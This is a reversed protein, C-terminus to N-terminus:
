IVLALHCSLIQAKSYKCPGNIDEQPEDFIVWYFFDPGQMTEVVEPPSGIKGYARQKWGGTSLVMVRDNVAFNKGLESM